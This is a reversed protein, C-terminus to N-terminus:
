QTNHSTECTLDILSHIFSHIFSHLCIIQIVEEQQSLQQKSEKSEAKAPPTATRQPPPGAPPQPPLNVPASPSSSPAVISSPQNWALNLKGAYAELVSRVIAVRQKEEIRFVGFLRLVAEQYAGQLTVL